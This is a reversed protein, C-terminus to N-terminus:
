LSSRASIRFFLITSKWCKVHTVGISYQRRLALAMVSCSHLATFCFGCVKCALVSISVTNAFPFVAAVENLFERRSISGANYLSINTCCSMLLRGVSSMAARGISSCNRFSWSSLIHLTHISRSTDMTNMGQPWRTTHLSQAGERLFHGMQLPVMLPVTRM